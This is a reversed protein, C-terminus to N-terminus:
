VLVVGWDDPKPNPAAASCFGAVSAEFDTKPVNPLGAAGAVSGVFADMKPPGDLTADGEVCNRKPACAVEM